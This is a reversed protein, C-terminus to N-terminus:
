KKIHREEYTRDLREYQKLHHSVQADTMAAFKVKLRRLELETPKLEEYSPEPEFMAAPPEAYTVSIIQMESSSANDNFEWLRKITICGLSPARWETEAGTKAPTSALKITQIGQVLETGVPMPRNPAADGYIPFACSRKPDWHSGQWLAVETIPAKITRKAKIDPYMRSILGDPRQIVVNSIQPPLIQLYEERWAGATNKMITTRMSEVPAEGKKWVRESLVVTFAPIDSQLALNVQAHILSPRKAVVTYTVVPAVALLVLTLRFLTKRTM